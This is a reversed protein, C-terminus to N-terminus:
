NKVKQWLPPTIQIDSTISIEGLLRSELKHKMWGLMECSTSQINSLWLFFSIIGNVAVHICSSIIMSLSTLWFPLSLNGCSAVEMHFRFFQALLFKFNFKFIKNVVFYFSLPMSLRCYCIIWFHNEDPKPSSHSTRLTLIFKKEANGMKWVINSNLIGTPSWHRITLVSWPPHTMSALPHPPLPLLSATCVLQDILCTLPSLQHNASRPDPVPDEWCNCPPM